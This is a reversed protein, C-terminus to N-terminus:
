RRKRRGSRSRSKRRSSGRREDKSSTEDAKSIQSGDSQDKAEEEPEIPPVEIVEEDEEDEPPPKPLMLLALLALAGLGFGALSIKISGQDPKFRFEVRHKGKPLHVGRMLYNARLLKAPADDVTVKWAPHHKDNLLLVTSTEADTEIVIRKPDYSLYRAPIVTANDDASEPAPIKESILVERHPNWDPRPLTALMEDDSLESRWHAFLGARPLAGEFEVLALPGNTQLVPVLDMVTMITKKPNKPILSFHMREYFLGEGGYTANLLPGSGSCVGLLFRASTLECLRLQNTWTAQRYAWNEPSVRPEQIIDLSQVRHYPFTHQAWLVSYLGNFPSLQQAKINLRQMQRQLQLQAPRNTATQAQQQLDMAEAQLYSMAVQPPLLKVRQEFPRQRLVDVVLNSAYKEVYNEHVLYRSHSRGFDVVMVLGLILWMVCALRGAFVGAVLLTVTAASVFLTGLSWFAMKLSFTAMAGSSEGFQLGEALHKKIEPQIAAYIVWGLTAVVILGLLCLNWGRQTAFWEKLRDLPSEKKSDSMYARVMGNLGYVFLVVLGLSAPHMFKIPNRISSFFPLPHLLQYFPAHRGWAFLISIIILGLWFIVWRRERAVFASHKGLFAQLVAWLCVVLVLMGAYIGYGSHRPLGQKKEMEMWGPQQGVAGWYQGGDETDLRYGFLGPVALRLTEGKPLSWQTAFNWKEEETQQQQQAVAVRGETRSLNSLAYGAMLAASLALVVLLGMGKGGSPALENLGVNERNIAAMIVFLAVYLSFIGGVDFSEMVGQGLGLGGLVVWAIMRWGRERLGNMVGAMALFAGAAGLAVSPLGWCAYTFFDGNLAAALAGLLCVPQSFRLSRFFLWACFGLLVLSIPQYWKAFLVAGNEGGFWLCLQFFGMTFNPMASPSEGGAWNLDQWFSWGENEDHAHAQIAGLPADNAFVVKEEDFSERFLFGLVLLLCGLTLLADKWWSSKSEDPTNQM